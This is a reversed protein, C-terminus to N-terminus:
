RQIEAAVRILDHHLLAEDQLDRVLDIRCRRCWQKTCPDRGPRREAVPFYAWAMLDAYDTKTSEAVHSNLESVGETSM